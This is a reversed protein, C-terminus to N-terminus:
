AIPPLCALLRSPTPLESSGCNGKRSPEVVKWFRCPMVRCWAPMPMTRQWQWRQPAARTRAWSMRRCPCMLRRSRRLHQRANRTLISLVSCCATDLWTKSRPQAMDQHRVVFLGTQMISGDQDSLMAIARLSLGVKNADFTVVSFKGFVFDVTESGAVQPDALAEAFALDIPRELQSELYEALLRYDRQAYGAVCDCALQKAMPDM